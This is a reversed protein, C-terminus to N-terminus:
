CVFFEDLGVPECVGCWHDIITRNLNGVKSCWFSNNGHIKPSYLCTSHPRRELSHYFNMIDFKMKPLDGCSTSRVNFVKSKKGTLEDINIQTNAISWFKFCLQKRKWAKKWRSKTQTQRCDMDIREGFYGNGTRDNTDRLNMITSKSSNLKM